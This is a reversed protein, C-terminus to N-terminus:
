DEIIIFFNIYNVFFEFDIECNGRANMFFSRYLLERFQKLKDM